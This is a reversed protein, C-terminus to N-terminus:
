DTSEVLLDLEAMATMLGTPAPTADAVATPTASPASSDVKAVVAKVMKTGAETVRTAAETNTITPLAAIEKVPGPAKEAVVAPDIEMVRMACASSLAPASLSLAVLVALLTRIM